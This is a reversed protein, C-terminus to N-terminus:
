GENEIREVIIVPWPWEGESRAQEARKRTLYAGYFWLKGSEPEVTCLWAQYPQNETYAPVNNVKIKAYKEM